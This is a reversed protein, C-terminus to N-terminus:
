QCNIISQLQNLNVPIPTLIPNQDIDESSTESSTEDILHSYKDTLKRFIRSGPRYTKHRWFMIFKGYRIRYRLRIYRVVPEDPPLLSKYPELLGMCEFLLLHQPEYMRKTCVSEIIKSPITVHISYRPVLSGYIHLLEHPNQMVIHRTGFFLKINDAFFEFDFEPMLHWRFYPFFSLSNGTQAMSAMLTYVLRRFGMRSHAAIRRVIRHSPAANVSLYNNLMRPFLTTLCESLCNKNIDREYVDCVLDIQSQTTICAAFKDIICLEQIEKRELLLQVIDPHTQGQLIKPLNTILNHRPHPHFFNINVAHRLFYKFICRIHVNEHLLDILSLLITTRNAHTLTYSHANIVHGISKYEIIRYISRRCDFLINLIARYTLRDFINNEKDLYDDLWWHTALTTQEATNYLAYMQQKLDLEHEDDDECGGTNRKPIKTKPAMDEEDM